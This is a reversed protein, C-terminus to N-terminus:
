EDLKTHVAQRQKKQQQKKQRKNQKRKQGKPQENESSENSDTETEPQHEEKFGDEDIDQCDAVNLPADKTCVILANGKVTEGEKLSGYFKKTALKNHGVGGHILILLGGESEKIDIKKNNNLFGAEKAAALTIRKVSETKSAALNNFFFYRANEKDSGYIKKKKTLRKEEMAEKQRVVEEFTQGFKEYEPKGWTPDNKMYEAICMKGGNVELEKNSPAALRKIRDFEEKEVTLNGSKNKKPTFPVGILKAFRALSSISTSSNEIDAAIRDLFVRIVVGVSGYKGSLQLTEGDCSGQPLGFRRDIQILTYKCRM